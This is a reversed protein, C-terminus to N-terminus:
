CGLASPCLMSDNRPLRLVSFLHWGGVLKEACGRRGKGRRELLQDMIRTTVAPPRLSTITTGHGSSIIPRALFCAAVTLSSLSMFVPSALTQAHIVWGEKGECLCKTAMKKRPPAHNWERQVSGEVILWMKGLCDALKVTSRLDM